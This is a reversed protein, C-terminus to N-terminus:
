PGTITAFNAKLNNCKASRVSRSFWMERASDGVVKMSFLGNLSYRECSCRPPVRREIRVLRVRLENISAPENLTTLLACFKVHSLLVSNLGMAEPNNANSVVHRRDDLRCRCRDIIHRSMCYIGAAFGAPITMSSAATVGLYTM